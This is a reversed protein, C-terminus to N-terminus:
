KTKRWSLFLRADLKNCTSESEQWDEAVPNRDIIKWPIMTLLRLVLKQDEFKNVQKCFAGPKLEWRIVNEELQAEGLVIYKTHIKFLRISVPVTVQGMKYAFSNRLYNEFKQHLNEMVFFWQVPLYVATKGSVINNPWMELQVSNNQDHRMQKHICSHQARQVLLSPNYQSYM